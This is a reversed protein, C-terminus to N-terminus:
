FKWRLVKWWQVLLIEDADNNKLQLERRTVRWITLLNNYCIFVDTIEYITSYITLIKINEFTSKSHKVQVCLQFLYRTIINSILNVTYQKIM